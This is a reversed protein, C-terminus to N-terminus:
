GLHDSLKNRRYIDVESLTSNKQTAAFAIVEAVEEPETVEGEEFEDKYTEETEGKIETRVESPNVVTVAVGKEGVDAEVSHAFGRTWWKTGVYVPIEKMPYKGACSGVFILNGETEELYPLGFKTTFFMGNVNTEMLNRYEEVALDEVKKRYILGANNVLIDIKGFEEATRKIMKKVQKEHRVDTPVAIADTEFSDEIKKVIKNLRDESRSALSIKAGGKALAMATAKGIGSSAGTILAVKGRLKPGQNM